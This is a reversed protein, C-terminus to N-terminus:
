DYLEMLEKIGGDKISIVFGTFLYSEQNEEFVRFNIIINKTYLIDWKLM